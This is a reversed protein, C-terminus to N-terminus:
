FSIHQDSEGHEVYLASEKDAEHHWHFKMMNNFLLTSFGTVDMKVQKSLWM